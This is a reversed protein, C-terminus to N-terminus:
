RNFYEKPTIGYQKYFVKTFYHTDLFGVAYAVETVTRYALKELLQHAKYLKLIRIYTNPTLFLLSKINRHLQRESVAVHYALQFLNVQCTKIEDFVVNELNKLWEKDASSIKEPALEGQCMARVNPNSEYIDFIVPEDKSHINVSNLKAIALVEEILRAIKKSNQLTIVAADHQSYADDSQMSVMNNVEIISKLPHQINYAIESLINPSNWNIIPNQSEM